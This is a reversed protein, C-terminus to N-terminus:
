DRPIIYPLLRNSFASGLDDRFGFYTNLDSRKDGFQYAYGRITQEMGRDDPQFNTTFNEQHKMFSWTLFVALVIVFTLYLPKM